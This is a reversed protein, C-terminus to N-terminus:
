RVPEAPRGPAIEYIGVVGSQMLQAASYAPTAQPEGQVLQRGQWGRLLDAIRASAAGDKGTNTIWRM